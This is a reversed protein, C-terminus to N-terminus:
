DTIVKMMMSSSHNVWRSQHHHLRTISNQEMQTRTAPPSVKAHKRGPLNEELNRIYEILCACLGQEHLELTCGAIKKEKMM